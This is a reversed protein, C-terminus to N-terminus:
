QLLRIKVLEALTFKTKYRYNFRSLLETEGKEIITQATKNRIRWGVFGLSRRLLLSPGMQSQNSLASNRALCDLLWIALAAKDAKTM